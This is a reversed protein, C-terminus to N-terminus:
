VQPPTIGTVRINGPVTVDAPTLYHVSEGPRVGSLALFARVDKVSLRRVAAEQGQLRVDAYGPVEGVVMMDEPIDRLELPVVFNVEATGRSVVHLWLIIAFILSFLKIVFNDFILRKLREVM